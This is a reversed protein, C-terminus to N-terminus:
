DSPTQNSCVRNANASNSSTASLAETKFNADKCNRWAFVDGERNGWEVTQAVSKTGPVIWTRFNRRELFLRIERYIPTKSERHRAHGKIYLRHTVRLMQEMGRLIHMEAGNVAIEIFDLRRVGLGGMINDITDVVVDVQDIYYNAARYDNDHEISPLAIRHDSPRPAILFKAKGSIDFAAKPIITVNNLGRRGIHCYHRALNQPEPEILIVRGSLGVCKSMAEIKSPFPTGVITATDGRNLLYPWSISQIRRFVWLRFSAKLYGEPICTGITSIAQAKIGSLQKRLPRDGILKGM